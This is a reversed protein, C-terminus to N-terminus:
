GKAMSVLASLRLQAIELIDIGLCQPIKGLVWVRLPRHPDGGRLNGVVGAARASGM